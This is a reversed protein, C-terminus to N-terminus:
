KKLKEVLVNFDVGAVPMKKWKNNEYQWTGGNFLGIFFSPEAVQQNDLWEIAVLITGKVQIEYPALDVNIRNKGKPMSGIITQKVLSEGPIANNFEYVNVKFKLTDSSRNEVGFNLKLLKVTKSGAKMKIGIQQGKIVAFTSNSTGTRAKNGITTTHQAYAAFVSLLIVSTFIMKMKLLTPKHSM